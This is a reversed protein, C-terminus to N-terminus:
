RCGIVRRGADPEAVQLVDIFLLRPDVGIRTMEDGAQRGVIHQEGAGAARALRRQDLGQEVLVRRLAQADDLDLLAVQGIQRVDDFHDVSARFAKMM